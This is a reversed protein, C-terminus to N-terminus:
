KGGFLLLIYMEPFVLNQKMSVEWKKQFVYFTKKNDLEATATMTASTNNSDTSTTNGSTMNTSVAYPSTQALTHPTLVSISSILLATVIFLVLIM